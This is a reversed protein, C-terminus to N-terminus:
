FVSLVLAALIPWCVWGSRGVGHALGAHRARVLASAVRGEREGVGAAGRAQNADAAALAGLFASIAEDAWGDAPLRRERLVQGPTPRTNARRTNACLHSLARCVSCFLRTGFQAQRRRAESAARRAYSDGVLTAALAFNAEDMISHPEISTHQNSRRVVNQFKSFRGNSGMRVWEFM